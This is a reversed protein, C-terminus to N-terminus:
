QKYKAVFARLDEVLPGIQSSLNPDEAIAKDFLELATAYEGNIWSVEGLVRNATASNSDLALARRAEAAAAQLDRLQLHTLAHGEHAAVSNPFREAMASYEQRARTFEGMRMLAIGAGDWAEEYTPALQYAARFHRLASAFDNEELAFRGAIFRGHANSPKLATVRDVPGEPITSTPQLGCGALVLLLAPATSLRHITV